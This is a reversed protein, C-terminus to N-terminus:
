FVHFFLDKYKFLPMLGVMATNLAGKRNQSKNGGNKPWGNQRIEKAGQRNKGPKGVLKEALEPKGANRLKDTIWQRNEPKHWFFFRHQDAKEKKSKPVFTPKLTYPHM